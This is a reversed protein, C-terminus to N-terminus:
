NERFTKNAPSILKASIMVTMNMKPDEAAINKM